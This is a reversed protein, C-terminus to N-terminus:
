VTGYGECAHTEWAAEGWGESQAADHALRAGEPTGFRPWRKLLVKKPLRRM